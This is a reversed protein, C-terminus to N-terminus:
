RNKGSAHFYELVGRFIGESLKEQYGPTISEELEQPNSLFCGEILVAPRHNHHLVYLEDQRSNGSGDPSLAGLEKEAWKEIDEAAIAPLGPQDYYTIVGGVSPDEPFMNQHISIFLDAKARDAIDCREQLSVYRANSERTMIVHAGAAALKQALVDSVALNVDRELVPLPSAIAGTDSGGHGPDIVITKGFLWPEGYPSTRIGDEFVADGPNQRQWRFAQVPVWGSVGKDTRIELWEGAIRLPELLMTESLRGLIQFDTDPGDYFPVRNGFVRGLSVLPPSTVMRVVWNAVWGTQRAGTVVKSWQGQTEVVPFMDGQKAELLSPASVAPGSRINTGEVDVLAWRRYTPLQAATPGKGAAPVAVKVTSPQSPSISVPAVPTASPGFPSSAMGFLSLLGALVIMIKSAMTMQGKEAREGGPVVASLPKNEAIRGDLM